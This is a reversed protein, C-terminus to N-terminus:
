KPTLTLIGRGSDITVNFRGLFDRGLLGDSDSGALEYVIVPLRGVTAGGVELSDVVAVQARDTGTAGTLRAPRTARTLSVGSARLARPSILTRDAGTDVQLRVGANGNVRADVMIRQGPTFRIEGPTAATAAREGAAAPRPQYHLPTAQARYREPVSDLGEAYHATGADDIWRYYEAAAPAATALVTLLALIARARTMAAIM